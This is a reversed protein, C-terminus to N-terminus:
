QDGPDELTAGVDYGLAAAMDPTVCIARGLRTMPAIALSGSAVSVGLQALAATKTGPNIDRGSAM